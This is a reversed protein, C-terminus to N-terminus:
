SLGSQIGKGCSSFYINYSVTFEDIINLFEDPISLVSASDLFDLSHRARKSIEGLELANQYVECVAKKQCDLDHLLDTSTEYRTCFIFSKHNDLGIQPQRRDHSKLLSPKKTADTETLRLGKETAQHMKEHVNRQQKADVSTDLTWWVILTIIFIQMFYLFVLNYRFELHM